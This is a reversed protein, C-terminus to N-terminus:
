ATLSASQGLSGTFRSNRRLGSRLLNDGSKGADQCASFATLLIATPIALTRM